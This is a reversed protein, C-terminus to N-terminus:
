ERLGRIAEGLAESKEVEFRKRDCFGLQVDDGCERDDSVIAIRYISVSRRSRDSCRHRQVRIRLLSETSHEEDYRPQAQM